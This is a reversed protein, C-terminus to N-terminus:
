LTESSIIVFGFQSSRDPKFVTRVLCTEEDDGGYYTTMCTVTVYNGSGTDSSMSVQRHFQTGMGDTPVPVYGDPADWLGSSQEPLTVGYLDKALCSVMDYSVCLGYGAFDTAYDRLVAATAGALAREDSLAENYCFNANLMATFLESLERDSFPEERYADTDAADAEGGTIETGTRYGDAAIPSTVYSESEAVGLIATPFILAACLCVTSVVSLVCLFRTKKM